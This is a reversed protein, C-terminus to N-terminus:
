NVKIVQGEKYKPNDSMYEAQRQPSTFRISDIKISDSGEVSLSIDSAHYIDILDHKIYVGPLLSKEARVVIGFDVTAGGNTRYIVIKWSNINMDQMREFSPDAGNKISSLTLLNFSIPLLSGISLLSLVVLFILKLSKKEFKAKFVLVLAYIPLLYLILGVIENAYINEFRVGLLYGIFLVAFAALIYTNPNSKSFHDRM